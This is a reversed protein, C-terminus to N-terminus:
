CRLSQFPLHTAVAAAHPATTLQQGSWQSGGREPQRALKVRLGAVSVDGGLHAKSQARCLEESWDVM